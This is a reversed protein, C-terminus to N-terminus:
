GGEALQDLLAQVASRVKEDLARVEAESPAAGAPRGTRRTEIPEGVRYRLTVPLPLHPLPGFALGWPLSMHLPWIHARALKDV